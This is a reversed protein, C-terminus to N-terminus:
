DGSPDEDHDPLTDDAYERVRDVEVIWLRGAIANGALVATFTTLALALNAQDFPEPLRLVVIGAYQRPPYVVTNSFDKNLTLLCRGEIRCVELITRDACSALGQEFVTAVDCGATGLQAAGMTGLNEDLKLKM